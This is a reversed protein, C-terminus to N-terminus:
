SLNFEINVLTGKGPVSHIDLEGKLYEVRFRINAWGAGKSSELISTDFGKGNDEVVINLRNGDRILQVFAESANSHKIINNLLEQLIRYIIIEISGDLRTDMGLSQYKVQVIGTANITSCYEKVAEDLGFRTLMEPMMNHAVRRLERISADIMDLSREFVAMNDPTIILNEKMNILSYKVGSLLGGLGDHLDKALRSREEEQGKLMSDVTLLQKDKELERITQLHMEAQQRNLKQRHRINRYGLFSVLLLGAISGILIYNLISKQRLSLAQIQKDKQLQLIENSKKEAEYEEDMLLIRYHNQEKVLSDAFKAQRSKYEYARAINGKAEELESLNSLTLLIKPKYNYQMAVNLSHQFYKEASDFNKADLYDRGIENTEEALYYPDDWKIAYEYAAKHHTTARAFDKRSRYYEGYAHHYYTRAVPTSTHSVLSDAKKLYVLGDKFRGIKFCITALRSCATSNQTKSRSGNILQVSRYMHEYSKNWEDMDSFVFAINFIVTIM